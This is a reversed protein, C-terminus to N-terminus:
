TGRADDFADRAASRAHAVADSVGSRRAWEAVSERMERGSKKATLLAVVAGAAAGALFALALHGASVSRGERM